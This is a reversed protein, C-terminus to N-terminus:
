PITFLRATTLEVDFSRVARGKSAAYALLREGEGPSWPTRMVLLWNRGRPFAPLQDHKLINVQTGGPLPATRSYYRLCPISYPAVWVQDGPELHTLLAYHVDRVRDISNDKLMLQTTWASGTALLVLATAGLAAMPSRKKILAVAKALMVAFIPILFLVLRSSFPYRGLGSAGLCAAISLLGALWFWSRKWVAYAATVILGLPLLLALRYHITEEGAGIWAQYLWSATASPPWLPMYSQTWIAALSQNAVAARASLLFVLALNIAACGGFQLALLRAQRQRTFIARLVLTLAIGCVVFVGGFSFWALVPSLILPWARRHADEENPELGIAMFLALLLLLTVSAELTYQKSIGSYMSIGRNLCILGFGLLAALPETNLPFLRLMLWLGLPITALGALLPIIRVSWDSMGLGAFLAKSFTLYGFPAAQDYDLTHTFGAISRDAINMCVACEDMMMSHMRAFEAVRSITGAAALVVLLVITLLRLRRSPDSPAADRNRHTGASAPLNTETAM